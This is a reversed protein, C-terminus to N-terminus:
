REISDPDSRTTPPRRRVDNQATLLVTRAAERTSAGLARVRRVLLQVVPGYPRWPFAEVRQVDGKGNFKIYGIETGEYDVNLFRADHRRRLTVKDLDLM